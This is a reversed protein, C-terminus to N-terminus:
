QYGPQSCHVTNIKNNHSISKHVEQVFYLNNNNILPSQNGVSYRCLCSGGSISNIFSSLLDNEHNELDHEKNTTVSDPNTNVASNYSLNSCM